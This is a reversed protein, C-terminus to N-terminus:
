GPECVLQQLECLSRACLQDAESASIRLLASMEAFTLDDCYGLALVLRATPSLCEVARAVLEM